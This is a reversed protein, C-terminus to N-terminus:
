STTTSFLLTLSSSVNNFSNDSPLIVTSSYLFSLLFYIVNLLLKSLQKKIHLAAQVLTTLLCPHMAYYNSLFSIDKIYRYYWFDKKDWFRLIARSTYLLHLIHLACFCLVFTYFRLNNNIHYFM